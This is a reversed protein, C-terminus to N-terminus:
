KKYKDIGNGCYWKKNKVMEKFLNSNLKYRSTDGQPEPHYLHYQIAKNKMSFAKGGSFIVRKEIDMDEWGYGIYNEDFGNVKLLIERKVGFNSGLIRPNRKLKLWPLYLADPLKKRRSDSFILEFINFKSKKKEMVKKTLNEGLNFRRGTFLDGNNYNKAYEYLFKPHIMCDVDIFVLLKGNSKLVGKNLAM